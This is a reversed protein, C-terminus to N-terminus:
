WIKFKGVVVPVDSSSRLIIEINTEKRIREQQLDFASRELCELCDLGKTPSTKWETLPLEDLQRELLSLEIFLKFVVRSEVM